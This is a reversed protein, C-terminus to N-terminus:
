VTLTDLRDPIVVRGDFESEAQERLPTTTEYSDAIHVLWLEEADTADAFSGAARATGHGLDTALEANDDGYMAEHIVVDCEGVRDRLAPAAATDATYVIRRAGEFILAQTPVAHNAPAVRVRIEGVDFTDGVRTERVTDEDHLVTELGPTVIDMLSRLDSITEHSGRVTLPGNPPTARIADIRAFFRGLLVNPVGLLHDAHSHTCFIDTVDGPSHGLADLTAPIRTGADVLLVDDGAEVLLHVTDDSRPYAATGLLRLTAM